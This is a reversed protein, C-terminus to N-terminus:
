YFNKRLITSTNMFFHLAYKINYLECMARYLIVCLKKYSHNAIYANHIADFYFLCTTTTTTTTTKTTKLTEIIICQRLQHVTTCASCQNNRTSPIVGLDLAFTQACHLIDKRGRYSALSQGNYPPPKPIIRVLHKQLLHKMDYNTNM